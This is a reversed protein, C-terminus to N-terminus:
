IRRPAFRWGLVTPAQGNHTPACEVAYSCAGSAGGQRPCVSVARQWVAPPSQLLGARATGHRPTPHPPTSTGRLRRTVVLAEAAVAQVLHLVRVVQSRQAIFEPHPAPPAAPCPCPSPAPLCTCVHAHAPVRAAHMCPPILSCSPPAPTHIHTHPPPAAPSPPQCAVRLLGVARLPAGWVALVEMHTHTYTHTNCARGGHAEGHGGAGAM